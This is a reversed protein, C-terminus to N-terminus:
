SSLPPPLPGLMVLERIAALRKAGIGPVQRLQEISRFGGRRERLQVIRNAIVPGIGPLAELQRATASNLDLPGVAEMLASSDCAAPVVVPQTRIVRARKLWTLGSGAVFTAALLILVYRERNNLFGLRLADRWGPM